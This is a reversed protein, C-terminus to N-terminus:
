SGKGEIAKVNAGFVPHAPDFPDPRDGELPPPATVANGSPAPTPTRRSQAKPTERGPAPAAAVPQATASLAAKARADAGAGNGAQENRPRQFNRVSVLYHAIRFYGKDVALDAASVGWPNRAEVDAGAAISQQVSPFDNTQVAAFLRRTAEESAPGGAASFAPTALIVVAGLAVPLLCRDLSRHFPLLRM